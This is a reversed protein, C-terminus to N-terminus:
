LQTLVADHPLRVRVWVRVLTIALAIDDTGFKRLVRLRVHFRLAVVVINVVLFISSYIVLSTAVSEHENPPHNTGTTPPDM